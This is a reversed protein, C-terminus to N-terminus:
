IVSTNKKQKLSGTVTQWGPIHYKQNFSGQVMRFQLIKIWCNRHFYTCKMEPCGHHLLTIKWFTRNIKIHGIFPSHYINIYGHCTIYWNLKNKRFWFSSFLSFGNQDDYPFIRGRTSFWGTIITGHDHQLKANHKKLTKKNNNKQLRDVLGPIWGVDPDQEAVVLKLSHAPAECQAFISSLPYQVFYQRISKCQGLHWLVSMSKFFFRKNFVSQRQCRIEAAKWWWSAPLCYNVHRPISTSISSMSVSISSISMSTSSISMSTSSISMSISESLRPCPYRHKKGQSSTWSSHCVVAMIQGVNPPGADPTGQKWKRTQRHIRALAKSCVKQGLCRIKPNLSGQSRLSFRM